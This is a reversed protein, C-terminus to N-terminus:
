DDEVIHPDLGYLALLPQISQPCHRIHLATTGNKIVLATIIAALGASDIQTVQSLDICRIEPQRILEKWQANVTPARWEGLLAIVGKSLSEFAKAMM